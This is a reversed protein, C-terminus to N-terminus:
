FFNGITFEFVLADEHIQPTNQADLPIGWEFRLPGIPSIWRFGFGVSKRLGSTISDPLRIMMPNPEFTVAQVGPTYHSDNPNYMGEKQLHVQLARGCVTSVDSDAQGELERWQRQAKLPGIKALFVVTPVLIIFAIMAIYLPSISFKESLGGKGTEGRAKRGGAWVQASSIAANAGGAVFTGGCSPCTVTRGAWEDKVRLAKGCGCTVSIPM